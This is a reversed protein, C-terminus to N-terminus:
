RTLVEVLQAVTPTGDVGGASRYLRCAVSPADASRFPDHGDVLITPSGRMGLRRAADESAVEIEEVVATVGIDRLAEGVRARAAGLNPCESVYLIDLRM